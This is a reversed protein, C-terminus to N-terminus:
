SCHEVSASKKSRVQEGVNYWVDCGDCLLWFVEGRYWRESKDGVHERGCICAMSTPMEASSQGASSPQSSIRANRTADKLIHEPINGQERRLGGEYKITYIWCAIDKAKDVHLYASVVHSAYWCDHFNVKVRQDVSFKPEPTARESSAAAPPPTKSTGEEGSHTKAASASPETAVNPCAPSSAGSPPEIALSKAVITRQNEVKVSVPAAVKPAESPTGEEAGTKSASTPPVSAVTPRAPSEVDCGIPAMSAPLSEPITALVAAPSATTLVSSPTPPSAAAFNGNAVQPTESRAKASQPAGEGGGKELNSSKWDVGLVPSVIKSLLSMGTQNTSSKSARSKGNNPTSKAKMKAKFFMLANSLKTFKEATPAVMYYYSRMSSSNAGCPRKREYVTWDDGLGISSGLIKKTNPKEAVRAVDFPSNTVLEFDDDEDSESTSDDSDNYDNHDDYKNRGRRYNDLNLRKQSSAPKVEATSSANTTGLHGKETFYKTAAKISRFETGDPAVVILPSKRTKEYVLWDENLGRSM